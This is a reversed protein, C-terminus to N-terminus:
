GYGFGDNVYDCNVIMFIAVMLVMMIEGDFASFWDFDSTVLLKM